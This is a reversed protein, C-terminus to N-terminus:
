KSVPKRKFVYCAHGDHGTFITFEIGHRKCFSDISRLGYGSGNVKTTIRQHKKFSDLVEQTFGPGNDVFVMEDGDAVIVLKTAGAESSNTAINLVLSRLREMNSYIKFGEGELKVELSLGKIGEFVDFVNLLTKEKLDYSLQENIYDIRNRITALADDVNNKECSTNRCANCTKDIKSALGKLVSLENKVDHILEALPISLYDKM